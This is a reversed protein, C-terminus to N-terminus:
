LPVFFTVQTTPTCLLLRFLIPDLEPSSLRLHNLLFSLFPILSYCSSKLHSKFNCQSQSLDTALIRSIFASFRLAHAATFQFTHLIAIASYQRYDRTTYIYLTCYIGDDLGSGPKNTVGVRSLTVTISGTPEDIKNNISVTDTYIGSTSVM